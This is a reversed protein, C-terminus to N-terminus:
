RAPRQLVTNNNGTKNITPTGSRYIVANDDGVVSITGASDVTVHNAGGFIELRSCHGTITYTNNDGDLKVNGNNCDITDKAGSNIMVLHGHVTTKGTYHALFLAIAIMSTAACVLILRGPVTNALQAIGRLRPRASPGAFPTQGPGYELGRIYQEPDESKM